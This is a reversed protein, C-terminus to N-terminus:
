ANNESAQDNGLKYAGLRRGRGGQGSGSFNESAWLIDDTDWCPDLLRSLVGQQNVIKSYSKVIESKFPFNGNINDNGPTAASSMARLENITEHLENNKKQLAENQKQMKMFEEGAIDLKQQMQRQGQDYCTQKQRTISHSEQQLETVKAQLEQVQQKAVKNEEELKKMEEQMRRLLIEQEQHMAIEQSEPDNSDKEPLRPSLRPTVSRSTPPSPAQKAYSAAVAPNGTDSPSPFLAAKFYSVSDSITGGAASITQGIQGGIKDFASRAKKATPQESEVPRNSRFKAHKKNKKDRLHQELAGSTKFSDGCVPCLRECPSAARKAMSRLQHHLANITGM